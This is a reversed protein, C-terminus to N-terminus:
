FTASDFSYFVFLQVCATANENPHFIYINHYPPNSASAIGSLLFFFFMNTGRPCFFVGVPHVIAPSTYSLINGTGHNKQAVAHRSNVTVLAVARSGRSM